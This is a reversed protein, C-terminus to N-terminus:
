MRGWNYAAFAVTASVQAPGQWEFLSDVESQSSNAEQGNPNEPFAKDQIASMESDFLFRCM